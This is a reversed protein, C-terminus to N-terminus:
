CFIMSSQGGKVVFQSSTTVLNTTGSQVHFNCGLSKTLRHECKQLLFKVGAVTMSDNNADLTSLIHMVVTDYKLCLGDLILNILEYESFLQGSAVLADYIEKMQKVYGHIDLNGKKLTQLSIKLEFIFYNQLTVWVEIAISYKLLYSFMAKSISVLLWNM